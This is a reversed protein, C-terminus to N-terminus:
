SAIMTSGGCISCWTPDLSPQLRSIPGFCSKVDLDIRTPTSFNIDPHCQCLTPPSIALFNPPLSSVSSQRQLVDFHLCLDSNHQNNKFIRQDASIGSQAESRPFESNQLLAKFIHARYPLSCISLVKTSSPPIYQM